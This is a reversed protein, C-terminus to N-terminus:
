FMTQNKDRKLKKKKFYNDTCLFALHSQGNRRTIAEVYGLRTDWENHRREDLQTPSGMIGNRAAADENVPFPHM